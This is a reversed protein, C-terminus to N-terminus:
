GPRGSSDTAGDEELSGLLEAFRGERLWFGYVGFEAVFAIAIQGPVAHRRQLAEPFDMVDVQSGALVRDAVRDIHGLTCSRHRNLAEEVSRGAVRGM